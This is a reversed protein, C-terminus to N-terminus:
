RDFSIAFATKKTLERWDNGHMRWVRSFYRIFSKDMSETKSILHILLPSPFNFGERDMKQRYICTMQLKTGRVSHALVSNEWFCVSSRALSLVKARSRYATLCCRFITTYYQDGINEMCMLYSIQVLFFTKNQQYWFLMTCNCNSLARAKLKKGLM